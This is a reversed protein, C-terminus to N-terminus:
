ILAFRARPRSESPYEALRRYFNAFGVFAQVDKVNKPSEWDRITSVKKPDMRIRKTSIILGPYLVETVHFELKNVDLQLGAKYLAELVLRGHKRHEEVSNSYVLVDDVYATCFIDLYEHLTDNIYHQFSSPANALGFPLVLYEFLGYRTRFATKWEENEAIRLRNFADIVDLKSFIVAKSMRDLTEKILPLPYRDNVTIANLARYDVSFRLGGGPKKVFLVPSAAPSSSARIFGKKLNDDLYKKLVRLEDQSMGYLPGFTPEKGEQLKIKHNYARRAPLTDADHRSFVDLLDHYEEPVKTAPDTVERPSLAKEIDRMSASFM